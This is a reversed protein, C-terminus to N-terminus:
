RLVVRIWPPPVSVFKGPGAGANVIREGNGRRRASFQENNLRHHM